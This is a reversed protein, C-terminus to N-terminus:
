IPYFTIKKFDSSSFEKEESTYKEPFVYCNPNKKTFIEATPHLM